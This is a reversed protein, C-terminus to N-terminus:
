LAFVQVHDSTLALFRSNAMIMGYETSGSSFHVTSSIELRFAVQSDLHRLCEDCDDAQRRFM